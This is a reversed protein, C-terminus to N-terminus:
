TPPLQFNTLPLLAKCLNDYSLKFVSYQLDNALNRNLIEERNLIAELTRFTWTWTCIANWSRRRHKWLTHLTACGMYVSANGGSVYRVESWGGAIRFCLKIHRHRLKIAEKADHCQFFDMFVAKVIFISSLSNHIKKNGGVCSMNLRWIATRTSSVASNINM